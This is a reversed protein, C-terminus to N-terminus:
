VVGLAVFVGEVVAFGKAQFDAVSVTRREAVLGQDGHSRSDQTLSAVSM